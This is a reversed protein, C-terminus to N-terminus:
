LTIMSTNLYRKNGQPAVYYTLPVAVTTEQHIAPDNDLVRLIDPAAGEATTWQDFLTVNKTRNTSQVRPQFSLQTWTALRELNEGDLAYDAFILQDNLWIELVGDAVGQASQRKARLTTYYVNNVEITGAPAITQNTVGIGSLTLEGLSTFGLSYNAFGGAGTSGSMTLGWLTRASLQPIAGDDTPRFAQSCEYEFNPMPVAGTAIFPTGGNVGNSLWREGPVTVPLYDFAFTATSNNATWDPHANLTATTSYGDGGIARVLAM